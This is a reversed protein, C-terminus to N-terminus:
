KMQVNILSPYDYASGNSCDVFGGVFGGAIINGFAIGKTSSKVTIQGAKTDKRCMVFLDEYSRNITLTGPTSPIFWKGKDNSLECSAEKIPSTDVSVIQHQGSIISACGTLLSLSLVCIKKM